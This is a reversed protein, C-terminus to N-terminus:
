LALGTRQTVLTNAAAESTTLLRVPNEDRLHDTLVLEWIDARGAPDDVYGDTLQYRHLVLQATVRHPRPSALRRMDFHYHHRTSRIRQRLDEPVTEPNDADALLRELDQGCSPTPPLPDHLGPPPGDKLTGEPRQPWRHDRAPKLLDADIHKTGEVDDLDIVYGAPGTVQQTDDDFAWGIDRM